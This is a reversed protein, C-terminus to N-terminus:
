VVKHCRACNGKVSFAQRDDHCSGCSKGKEMDTMKATLRKGPTGYTGGHCERCGYMGLHFKHSFIVTGTGTSGYSVETAPHCATCKELGFATKRDHCAGCSKGKEMAAMGVPRNAGARFIGAHCTECRQRQLHSKHDFTIRGVGSGKLSVQRAPHCKDCSTVSFARTGNHCSGCSKGQELEAMSHRGLKNTGERHCAKCNNKITKQRLHDKHSFVVSGIEGTKYTVNKLEYASALPAACILMCASVVFGLRNM